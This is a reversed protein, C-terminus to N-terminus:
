LLVQIRRCIEPRSAVYMAISLSLRAGTFIAGNGSPLARDAVVSEDASAGALVPETM